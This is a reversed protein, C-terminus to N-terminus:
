DMKPRFYELRKQNMMKDPTKSNIYDNFSNPNSVMNDIFNICYVGCESNEYQHQINNFKKEVKTNHFLKKQVYKLFKKIQNPPEKGVSDFFYIKITGNNM